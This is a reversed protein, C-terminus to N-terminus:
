VGGLFPDIISDLERSSKGSLRYSAYIDGLLNGLMSFAVQDVCSKLADNSADPYKDSIMKVVYRVHNLFASEYFRIKYHPFVKMIFTYLIDKAKASIGHKRTGMMIINVCLNFINKIIVSYHVKQKAAFLARTTNNEASNSIEEHLQNILTSVKSSIENYDSPEFSSHNYKVRNLIQMCALSNAIARRFRYEPPRNHSHRVVIDPHYLIKFGKSMVLYAWALDEAFSVEPFAIKRLVEARYIACVNDLRVNRLVDDYGLNVFSEESDLDQIKPVFGLYESHHEVEFRAYLDADAHPIQRGYAAVISNDGDLAKSLILLWNDNVPIADQVMFIIKKQTALVVAENRTKSHSFEKKDIQRIIAGFSEAVQQTGDSSGSDVIILEVKGPYKQARIETLCQRFIEGGNLTPIIISLGDM